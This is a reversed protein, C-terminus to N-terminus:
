ASRVLPSCCHPLALLSLLNVNRAARWETMPRRLGAHRDQQGARAHRGRRRPLLAPQRPGARSTRTRGAPTASLSGRRRWRRSMALLLHQGAACGRVHGSGAHARTAAPSRWWKASRDARSTITRASTRATRPASVRSSRDGVPYGQIVGHSVGTEIVDYFTSGPPVDEFTANPPTVVPWAAANNVMKLLQGRTVANGPRFYQGPCPEGPGGCPYGSIISRCALWQVYPYFPNAPPVDEFQQDTYHLILSAEQADNGVAWVSNPAPAAVGALTAAPTSVATWTSGDWHLAGGNSGVAWVDDAARAAVASLPGIHPQVGAALKGRGM